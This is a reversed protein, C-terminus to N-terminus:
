PCEIVTRVSRGRPWHRTVGQRPPPLLNCVLLFENGFVINASTLGTADHTSAKCPILFILLMQCL